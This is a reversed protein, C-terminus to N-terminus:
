DTTAAAATAEERLQKRWAKKEASSGGYELEVVLQAADDVAKYYVILAYAGSQMRSVIAGGAKGMPIPAKLRDWDPYEAQLQDRYAEAAAAAADLDPYANQYIIKGITHSGPSAYVYVKDVGDPKIGQQTAIKVSKDNEAQWQTAADMAYQQGLQYGGM